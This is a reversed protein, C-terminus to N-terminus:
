RDEDREVADVDDRLPLHPRPNEPTWQEDGIIGTAQALRERSKAPDANRTRDATPAAVAREALPAWQHRKSPPRRPKGAPWRPMAALALDDGPVSYRRRM